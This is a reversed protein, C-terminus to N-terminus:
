RQEHEARDIARWLDLRAELQADDGPLTCIQGSLEVDLDHSDFFVRLQDLLRAHFVAAGQSATEPLIVGLRRVRGDNGHAVRDMTRVSGALRAGLSRLMQRRRRGPLGDIEPSSIDVFSVSFVTRYRQARAQELEVDQLLFRANNLGTADDVTDYLELKDLSLELTSAAWGGVAGFLLYAVGRSIVVGGFEGWGVADIADLRLVVYAATALAGAAVGGPLGLYMLAVFIPVFLMTGAVEVHDVGRALLVLVIAALSAFGALVLLHRARRYGMRALGGVVDRDGRLTGAMVESLIPRCPM